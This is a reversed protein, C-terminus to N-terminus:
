SAFIIEHYLKKKRKVILLTVGNYKIKIEKTTFTRIHFSFLYYTNPRSICDSVNEETPKIVFEKSRNNTNRLYAINITATDIKKNNRYFSFNCIDISDKLGAIGIHYDQKRNWYPFGIPYFVNPIVPMYPPGMLIDKGGKFPEVYFVTSDTNFCMFQVSEENRFVSGGETVTRYSPNDYYYNIKATDRTGVTPYFTSYFGVTSCGQILLVCVTTFVINKM